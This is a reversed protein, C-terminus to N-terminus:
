AATHIADAGAAQRRLEELSRGINALDRESSPGALNELLGLVRGLNEYGIEAREARMLFRELAGRWQQEAAADAGDLVLQGALNHLTALEFGLKYWDEVRRAEDPLVGLLEDTERLWGEFGHEARLEDWSGGLANVLRGLPQELEATFDDIEARNFACESVARGAELAMECTPLRAFVDSDFPPPLSPTAPLPASQVSARPTTAAEAEAEAEIRLLEEIYSHAPVNADPSTIPEDYTHMSLRPLQPAQPLAEQERQFAVTEDSFPEQLTQMDHAGFDYHEENSDEHYKEHYEEHCEEHRAPAALSPARAAAVRPVLGLRLSLDAILNTWEGGHQGRVLPVDRLQTPLYAFDIDSSDGLALMVVRVGFGWAAGLEFLFNPDRVSTESLLALVLTADALTAHLTNGDSDSSYGPLGSTWLAGSPFDLAGELADVIESTSEIEASAHCVFLRRTM